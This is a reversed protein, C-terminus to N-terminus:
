KKRNQDHYNILFQSLLSVPRGTAGKEKGSKYAIAAIDIHAWRFNKAFRALFAAGIISGASGDGINAMDAFNSELSEQYDDWLPFRWIRDFAEYGADILANAIKDDKTFVGCAHSGLSIRMAGTLTAVDIVFEPEYRESFTLADCLILRGEADTNLIEVTQKSMTTVIDGPKTAKADPLNECTPIVGVVHLPLKLSAIANITGLVSAAGCMDYKMYDMDPAPKLSIGGTDFTIGKGILVIPKQKGKTGNYEISILKPPQASGSTVSLFSNMGLKKIEDVEFIKTRIQQHVKTLKKAQEALFTPTCINAPLNALDKALNIGGAIAVSQEITKKAIKEDKNCLISMSALSGPQPKPKSKLQNFQYNVNFYQQIIQRLKWQEDYNNCNVEILCNIIKKIKTLNLARTAAQVMQVYQGPLMKQTDGSGVLLIRNAKLNPIDYIIQSQGLQGIFDGGALFKKLAGHSHRDIIKGAATLEQKDDVAFVICDTTQTLLAQSQLTLFQM